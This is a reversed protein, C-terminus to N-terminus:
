FEGDYFQVGITTRSLSVENKILVILSYSNSSKPFFHKYNIEKMDISKWSDCTEGVDDVETSNDNRKIITCYDFPATGGFKLLLQCMDGHRLWVNNGVTVNTVPNEVFITRQYYGYIKKSDMIVKSDNTCVGFYPVQNDRLMKIREEMPMETTTTVTPETMFEYAINEPKISGSEVLAKANWEFERGTADRRRRANPKKTTTTTTSTTSTTTTTTSTTTTSTTTTSTTTTPKQTTSSTPSPLPEYSLMLLAEVNYKGNEKRYWNSFNLTDTMGVYLCDIFWFVRVYAAKDYLKRDKESIVINHVTENQSSVYGNERITNNPGQILQMLGNFHNTVEFTTRNKVKELFIFIYFEDVAFDINYHGHKLDDTNM